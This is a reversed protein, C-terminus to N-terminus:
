AALGAGSGTRYKSVGLASRLRHLARNQIQRIRERSLGHARGVEALTQPTAGDLAFRRRIVDAEVSSLSSLKARLESLLVRDFPNHELSATESAILSYRDGTGGQDGGPQADLSLEHTSMHTIAQNLQEVDIDLEKAVESDLVPRGQDGEMQRRIRNARHFVDHVYAPVRVDRSKDYIARVMHHRIWWIAYTSFRFGRRHDFRDAARLLGLNGEQILDDMSLGRNQYNRAVHYVLRLNSEVFTRRAAEAADWCERLKAQYTKFARRSSAPVSANAVADDDVVAIIGLMGLLAREHERNPDARVIELANKATVKSSCWELRKALWRTVYSRAPSQGSLARRWLELRHSEIEAALELEQAATLLPRDRDTHSSSDTHANTTM